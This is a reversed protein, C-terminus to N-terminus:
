VAAGAAWAARAPGGHARALCGCPQRPQQKAPQDQAMGSPPAPHQQQWQRTLAHQQAAAPPPRAEEDHLGVSAATASAASRGAARRGASSCPQCAPQWGLCLWPQAPSTGAAAWLQAHSPGHTNQAPTEARGAVSHVRFTPALVSITAFSPLRAEASLWNNAAGFVAHAASSPMTRRTVMPSALCAALNHARGASGGPRILATAPLPEARAVRSAGRSGGFCDEAAPLHTASSRRIRPPGHFAASSREVGGGDRGGWWRRESVAGRTRM